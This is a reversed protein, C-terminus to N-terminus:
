RWEEPIENTKDFKSKRNEPTADSHDAITNGILFLQSSCVPAQESSRVLITVVIVM